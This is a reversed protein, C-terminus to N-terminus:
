GGVVVLERPAETLIELGQETVLFTDIVGVGTGGPWGELVDYQNEYNFLMGPELLPDPVAERPAPRHRHVWDPPFAIGLAYGGILWIWDPDIGADAIFRDAVQQVRSFPEGPRVGEVIAEMCGASCAMLDHWRPDVQGLAFTRSMNVHYRHLSACFDIHVLDGSKLHRPSAPGHHCGSRPGSGIMTRIGPHGCGRAMTEASIVADVETEGMGARLADRAAAM